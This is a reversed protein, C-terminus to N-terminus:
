ALDLFNREVVQFADVIHYPAEFRVDNKRQSVVGQDRM